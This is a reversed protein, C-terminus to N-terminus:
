TSKDNTPKPTAKMMPKPAITALKTPMIPPVPPFYASRRRIIRPVDVCTVQFGPQENEVTKRIYYRTGRTRCQRAIGRLTTIECSARPIFVQDAIKMEALLNPLVAASM